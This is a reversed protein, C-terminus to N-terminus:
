IACNSFLYGSVSSVVKGKFFTTARLWKGSRMEDRWADVKIPNGSNSKRFNVAATKTKIGPNKELYGVWCTDSWISGKDSTAGEKATEYTATGVKVSELEFLSALLDETIIAKQVYQIRGYVNPNEKLADRVTIGMLATNAKAGAFKLIYSTASLMDQIPLSTTTHYKWTTESTLSKSNGFSTTTFMLQMTELESQLLLKDALYETFDRDLQIPPSDTNDYDRDTILHMVGHERVNYTSTSMDFTVEHAPAGNARLTNGPIRLDNNYIYYQGSEEKVMKDPLASAFVYEYNSYQQAVDSLAKSIRFSGQLPM